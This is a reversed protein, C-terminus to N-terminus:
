ECMRAKREAGVEGGAGGSRDTFEECGSMRTRPGTVTNTNKVTLELTTFFWPPSGPLLKLDDNLNFQSLGSLIRRSRRGSDFHQHTFSFLCSFTERKKKKKKDPLRLPISFEVEGGARREGGGQAALVCLVEVLILLTWADSLVLLHWKEGVDGGGRGGRGGFCSGM